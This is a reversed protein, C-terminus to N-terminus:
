WENTLYPLRYVFEFTETFNKELIDPSVGNVFSSSFNNDKIALYNLDDISNTQRNRFKIGDITVRYKGAKVQITAHYFCYGNSLFIQVESHRYGYKTFSLIEPKRWCSISGHDPDAVINEFEGTNELYWCIDSVSLSDEYVKQWIIQDDQLKLNNLQAHASLACLCAFAISLIRKM